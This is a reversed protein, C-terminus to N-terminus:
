GDSEVGLLEDYRRKLDSVEHRERKGNNCLHYYASTLTKVPSVPMPREYKSQYLYLFGNQDVFYERGYIEISILRPNSSRSLM